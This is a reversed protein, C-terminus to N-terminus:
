QSGARTQIHVSRPGELVQVAKLRDRPENEPDDRISICTAINQPHQARRYATIATDFASQYAPDSQLRRARSVKMGIARAAHELPLPTNAPLTITRYGGPIGDPGLPDRKPSTIEVERDVGIIMAEILRTTAWDIGRTGWGARAPGMNLHGNPRIEPIDTM